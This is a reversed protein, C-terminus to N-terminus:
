VREFARVRADLQQILKFGGAEVQKNKDGEGREEMIDIILLGGHRLHTHAYDLYTSVPYHVGWSKFSCIIDVVDSSYDPDSTLLPIVQVYPQLNNRLLEAAVEVDNWPQMDEQYDHQIPNTGDGDLLYVRHMHYRDALLLATVGLGPGIELMSTPEWIDVVSAIGEVRKRARAEQKELLVHWPGKDKSHRQLYATVSYPWNINM